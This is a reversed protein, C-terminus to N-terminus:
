DDEARARVPPAASPQESDSGVGRAKEARREQKLARSPPRVEQLFTALAGALADREMGYRIFRGERRRWVLGAAELTSLHKSIAPQSM